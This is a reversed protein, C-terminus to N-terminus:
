CFVLEFRSTPTLDGAVRIAYLSELLENKLWSAIMASKVDRKSPFSGRYRAIVPIVEPLLDIM